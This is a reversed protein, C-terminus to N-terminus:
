GMAFACENKKKGAYWEMGPVKRNRFFGWPWFSEAKPAFVKIM